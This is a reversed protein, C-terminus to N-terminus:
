VGSCARTTSGCLGSSRVVGVGRIWLQFGGDLSGPRRCIWEKSQRAETSDFEAAIGIKLEKSAAARCIWEKSQRAETIDIEAAIGIKLEKSDAATTKM